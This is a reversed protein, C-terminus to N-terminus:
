APVAVLKSGQSVLGGAYHVQALKWGSKEFLKEFQDVTRESSNLINLMQRCLHANSVTSNGRNALLPPPFAAETTASVSNMNEPPTCAYSVISDGILLQTTTDAASRLQRLIKIAYDDSWDHLICRMMFVAPGKVPQPAFFDHEQLVVRGSSIATPMVEKWYSPASESIVFPRDQVIFKLHDFTKALLMSQSGVGGGVDVVVSDKPLAKWEFGDILARPPTASNLGTMANGFRRLRLSNEPLEAWEWFPANTNFAKQMSTQTPEGSTSWSPDSIAEQLYGTSKMCEDTSHAVLAAIGSTHDYKSDPDALIADLPKGTDLTSSIANNVFTDPSVERFIHQTALTRLIRALKEHNIKTPAAIDRVHLGQPGADRLIEVVHNEVAVRMCAPLHFQLATAVASVPPARVFATLQAAAAVIIDGAEQVEPSMRIGESQPNFPKHLAPFPQNATICAKEISDASTKILKVLAHLEELSAHIADSM